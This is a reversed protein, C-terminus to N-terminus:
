ADESLAQLAEDVAKRYNPESYYRKSNEIVRRLVDEGPPKLHSVTLLRNLEDPPFDRLLQGIAANFFQSAFVNVGDFDLDVQEGRRLAPAIWDYVAQGDDPTIADEGVLSAVHINM